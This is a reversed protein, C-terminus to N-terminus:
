KPYPPLNEGLEPPAPAPAPAACPAPICAGAIFFNGPTVFVVPGHNTFMDALAQFEQPGLKIQFDNQTGQLSYYLYFQNQPVEYGLWYSTVQTIPM